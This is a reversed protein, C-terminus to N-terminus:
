WFRDLTITDCISEWLKSDSYGISGFRPNVVVAVLEELITHAQTLM